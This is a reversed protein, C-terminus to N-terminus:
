ICVSLNDTDTSCDGLCDRHQTCGSEDSHSVGFIGRGRRDTEHAFAKVLPTVFGPIANRHNYECVKKGEGFNM